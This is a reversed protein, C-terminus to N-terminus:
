GFSVETGYVPLKADSTATDAVDRTLQVLILDGAAVAVGNITGTSSTLDCVVAQPKNVTGAALTVTTNTSTRQNATSTIADTGTRILTAVTKILCNGASDPSYFLTRLNIQSGAAFSSPVRIAAYLAQGLVQQFAYVRQSNEILPTPANTDEVWQLSGGGGGGGVIAELGGSSLKYLNGDSKFYLKRNGAGPSAPTAQESWTTAAHVGLAVTPNGAVGDGNTIVIQADAATITRQAWTDAATRAALGTAGLGELAALDNALVLTPNGAVGDGNTVTIGAAPAILTRASVTGAGTRVIVGTAALAALAALDADFAQVNVGIEVGLNVRSTVASAVDSLNNAAALLGTASGVVTSSSALTFGTGAANVVLIYNAVILGQELVPNFTGSFGDYLQFARAMQDKLRQVEITLKDFALEKVASPDPDADVWHVGQLFDPARVLVLTTGTAPAVIMNVTVGSPYTGDAAATGSITYDTTLAKLTVIGTATVYSYVLMDPKQILFYPFSFALTVGNGAYPVRNTTAPVTM